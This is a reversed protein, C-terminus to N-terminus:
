LFKFFTVLFNKEMKYCFNAFNRNAINKTKDPVELGVAINMLKKKM